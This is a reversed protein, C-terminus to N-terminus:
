GVPPVAISDRGVHDIAGAKAGAVGIDIGFRRIGLEIDADRAVERCRLSRHRHAEVDHIDEIRDILDSAAGADAYECRLVTRAATVEETQLFFYTRIRRDTLAIGRRVVPM